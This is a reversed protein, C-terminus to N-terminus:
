DVPLIDGAFMALIAMTMPDECENSLMLDRAATKDFYGLGSIAEGDEHDKEVESLGQALFFYVPLGENGVSRLPTWQTAHIGAEEQLEKAACAQPTLGEIGFGKIVEWTWGRLAHRFNRVLVLKGSETIPVAGVGYTAHWRSRLYFGETGNPFKVRDDYHTVFNNKYIVREELLEIEGKTHDGKYIESM